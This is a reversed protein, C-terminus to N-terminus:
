NYFVGFWDIQIPMRYFQKDDIGQLISAYKITIYQDQGILLTSNKEFNPIINSAIELGRKSGIGLPTFIDIQMYGEYISSSSRNVGLSQSQAPIFTARVWEDLGSINPKTNPYVIQPLNPISHIRKEFAKQILPIYSVM